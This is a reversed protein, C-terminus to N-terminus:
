KIKDEVGYIDIHQRTGTFNNAKAGQVMGPYADHNLLL